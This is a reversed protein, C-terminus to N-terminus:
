LSLARYKGSTKIGAKAGRVHLSPNTCKKAMLTLIRKSNTYNTTMPVGASTLIDTYRVIYGPRTYCGYRLLKTAHITVFLPTGDEGEKCDRQGHQDGSETQDDIVSRHILEFATELRGGVGAREGARVLDM